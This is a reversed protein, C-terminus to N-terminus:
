SQGMLETGVERRLCYPHFSQDFSANRALRTTGYSLATASMAKVPDVTVGEMTQRSRRFIPTNLIDDWLAFQITTRGDPCRFSHMTRVTLGADILRPHFANDAFALATFHIVPCMAPCMQNEYVTM